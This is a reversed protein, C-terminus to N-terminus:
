GLTVVKSTPEDSVVASIHAAWRQLARTREALYAARNYVGGVGSKHGSVHGLLAEVVHPPVQFREHLSTSFSRRFDHLVWPALPLSIHADPPRTSRGILLAPEPHRLVGSRWEEALGRSHRTGTGVVPKLHEQRSKTRDGPLRILAAELDVESWALAGIEDRRAGTLILLRTIAGYADDELANWIRKLEDDSLVRKRAGGEIAKHTFTAPNADLLGEKGAWGFFSSLSARTRNSAGPGRKDTLTLLLSAVLQRDVTQLPQPHLPAAYVELHRRLEEFGRPKQKLRQRALFRPLIAGFTEAAKHRAVAKQMAPDEGRRAKYLIEEAAKRATSPNLMAPTGLTMRRTKADIDYQVLWARLGRRPLRSAQRRLVGQRHRRRATPAHSYHNSEVIM